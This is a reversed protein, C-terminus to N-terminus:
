CVIMKVIRNEVNIVAKVDCILEKIKKIQVDSLGYTEGDKGDYTFMINGAVLEIIRGSKNVFVLSIDEMWDEYLKYEEDVWMGIQMEDLERNYGSMHEVHLCGINEYMEGLSVKNSKLEVETFELTKSNLMLVKEM